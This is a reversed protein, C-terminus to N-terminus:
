VELSVRLFVIFLCTLLDDALLCPLTSWLPIHFIRPCLLYSISEPLVPVAGEEPLVTPNCPLSFEGNSPLSWFDFTFGTLGITSERCSQWARPEPVSWASVQILWLLPKTGPHPSFAPPHPKASSVQLPIVMFDLCPLVCAETLLPGLVLRQTVSLSVFHKLVASSCTYSMYNCLNGTSSTNSTVMCIAPQGKASRINCARCHGKCM